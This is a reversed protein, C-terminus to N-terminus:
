EIGRADLNVREQVGSIEGLGKAMARVVEIEPAMELSVIIDALSREDYRLHQNLQAIQEASLVGQELLIRQLTAVEENNGTRILPSNM